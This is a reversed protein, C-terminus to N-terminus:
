WHIAGQRRMGDHADPMSPSLSGCAIYSASAVPAEAMHIGATRIYIYIGIGLCRLGVDAALSRVPMNHNSGRANCEMGPESAAHCTMHWCCDPSDLRLGKGHLPTGDRSCLVLQHIGDPAALRLQRSRTVWEM